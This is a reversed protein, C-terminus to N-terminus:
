VVSKRDPPSLQPPFVGGGVGAVGGVGSVGGVGGSPPPMPKLMSGPVQPSLFQHPVQARMGPSQNIPPASPQHRAQAMGGTGGFIGHGGKDYYSAADVQPPDKSGPPRYMGGGGPGGRGGKRMDGNYDNMGMARKEAEMKKEHLSGPPLDVNPGGPEDNLIGMNSFQRNIPSMWSDGGAKLPAKSGAKKAANSQGWGGNSGQGWSSGSGQSGASNWMGGGEEEDEWSSHRSAAVSSEKDGWGDQMSKPGSRISNSPPNGWCAQRGGADDPDGWGTPADSPKGWAATGNDVSPSAPSTSGWGSPETLATNQRSPQQQPVPPAQQPQQQQAQGPGHPQQSAAGSNKDWLNVPKYNYHTPDGWASTGDDIESKRSISQPSPEEWGSPEPGSGGGSVAPIPGPNWGSSQNQTQAQSVLKRGGGGQMVGQDLAPQPNQSRPQSQQPQAQPGPASVPQSNPMQQM